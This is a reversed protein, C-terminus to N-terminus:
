SDFYGHLLLPVPTILPDPLLFVCLGTHIDKLASAAKKMAVMTEANFSASELTNVQTKHMSHMPVIAQMLIIPNGM